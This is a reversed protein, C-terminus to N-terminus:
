PAHHARHEEVLTANCPEVAGNGVLDQKVCTKMRAQRRMVERQWLLARQELRDAHHQAPHDFLPSHCRIAEDVQVALPTAKSGNAPVRSM